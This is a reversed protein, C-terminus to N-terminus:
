HERLVTLLIYKVLYINSIHETSSPKYVFLFLILLQHCVRPIRLYLFKM